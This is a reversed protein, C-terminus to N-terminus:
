YLKVKKTNLHAVGSTSNPNRRMYPSADQWGRLQSKIERIIKDYHEQPFTEGKQKIDVRCDNAIKNKFHELETLYRITMTKKYKKQIYFHFNKYCVVDGEEGVEFPMEMDEDWEYSKLIGKLIEKRLEFSKKDAIAKDMQFEM